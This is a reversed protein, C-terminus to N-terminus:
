YIKKILRGRQLDVHPFSELTVRCVSASHEPPRLYVFMLHVLVHACLAPLCALMGAATRLPSPFEVRFGGQTQFFLM